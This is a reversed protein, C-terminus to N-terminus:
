WSEHFHLEILLLLNGPIANKLGRPYDGHGASSYGSPEDTCVGLDTAILLKCVDIEEVTIGM